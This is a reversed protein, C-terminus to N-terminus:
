EGKYFTRMLLKPCKFRGYFLRIFVKTGILASYISTIIGLALTVAFGRIVGSGLTLLILGVIFTSLNSDVITIMAREFGFNIASWGQKNEEIQDRIREFILVNADVAMGITLVIGAIGPLTLTAGLLSLTALLFICNCVLTINAILGLTGYFYCMFIFILASGYLLAKIGQDINDQGLSPGITKEEVIKVSAPLSGSRLMLALEASQDQTLGTIQFREGLESKIEAFSIVKEDVVPKIDFKEIQENWLSKYTIEKFIVAMASGKHERTVTKFARVADNAIHLDVAPRGDHARGVQADIISSGTLVPRKKLAYKRGKNDRKVLSGFPLKQGLSWSRDYSLYFEITATKGLLSKADHVDQIGPLDVVIQNQGQRYLTAESLGLENVRQSMTLLSTEMVQDRRKTM